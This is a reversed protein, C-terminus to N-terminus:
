FPRNATNNVRQYGADYSSGAQEGLFVVTDQGPGDLYTQWAARDSDTWESMPKPGGDRTLSAPLDPLQGTQYLTAMAIDTSAGATRGKPGAAASADAGLKVKSKLVSEAGRDNM